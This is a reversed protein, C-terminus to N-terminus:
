KLKLGDKFAHGVQEGLALYGHNVPDFTIPQLKKPDVSGNEDLISEDATANVIEGVMRCSEPDYSTLTCEVALPLEKILPAHVHASPEAHFGSHEFKDTVQNGSVVGLYDCQQMTAVTGM